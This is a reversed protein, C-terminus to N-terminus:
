YTLGLANMAKLYDDTNEPKGGMEIVKGRVRADDSASEQSLSSGYKKMAVSDPVQTSDEVLENVRFGTPLGPSRGEAAALTERMFFLHRECDSSQLLKDVSARDGGFLASVEVPSLRMERQLKEASQQFQSYSATVSLRTEIAAKDNELLQIKEDREKVSSELVTVRALVETLDPTKDENLEPMKGKEKIIKEDELGLDGEIVVSRMNLAFEEEGKRYDTFGVSSDAPISALSIEFLEWETAKLVAKQITKRYGDEDLEYKAPSVVEYKRVRYGFSKGPEVGDEIDKLYQEGYNSRGVKSKAKGSTGDFACEVVKGVRQDARHNDLLMCVSNKVRDLVVHKAEMSLVEDFRGYISQDPFYGYREVPETSAFVFEVVNRQEDVISSQLPAAYRFQLGSLNVPPDTAM